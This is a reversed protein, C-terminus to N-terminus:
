TAPAAPARAVIRVSAGLSGDAENASRRHGTGFRAAARAAGPLACPIEINSNGMAGLGSFRAVM